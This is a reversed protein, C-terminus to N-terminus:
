KGELFERVKEPIEERVVSDLSQAMILAESFMGTEVLMAIRRLAYADARLDEVFDSQQKSAAERENSYRNVYEAARKRISASAQSKNM